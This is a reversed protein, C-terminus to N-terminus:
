QKPTPSSAVPLAPRYLLSDVRQMTSECARLRYEVATNRDSAGWISQGLYFAAGGIGTLVVLAIRVAWTLPRKVDHMDMTLQAVVVALDAGGRRYQEALALEVNRQPRGCMREIRRVDGASLHAPAQVPYAPTIDDATTRLEPTQDCDDNNGM